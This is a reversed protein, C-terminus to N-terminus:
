SRIFRHKQRKLRNQWIVMKPKRIESDQIEMIEVLDTILKEAIDRRAEELNLSVVNELNSM